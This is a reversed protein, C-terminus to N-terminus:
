AAHCLIPTLDMRLYPKWDVVTIILQVLIAVTASAILTFALQVV